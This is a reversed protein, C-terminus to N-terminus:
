APCAATGRGGAPLNLRYHAAVKTGRREPSVAETDGNVLYDNIGDKFHHGPM